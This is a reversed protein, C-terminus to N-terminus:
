DATIIASGHRTSAQVRMTRAARDFGPSLYIARQRGMQVTQSVLATGPVEIRAAGWGTEAELSLGLEGQRAAQTVEPPLVVRASGNVTTATVRQHPSPSEPVAMPRVTVSGNVSAAKLDGAAAVGTVSGNTSRAEVVAARVRELVVSGNVSSASVLQAAVDALDLRGNASRVEVSDGGVGKVSVSGNVTSGRLRVALYSAVTLEVSVSDGFGWRREADAARVALRTPGHEVQVLRPAEAEAEERTRARVRRELRLRWARPGGLDAAPVATVRLSGNGVSLDVDPVVGEAFTGALEEALVHEPYAAKGIQGFAQGIREALTQGLQELREGLDTLREQVQPSSMARYVREGLEDALGSMRAAASEVWRMFDGTREPPEPRAAGPAGAEYPGTGAAAGPGAEAGRAAPQLAKLLEVAQEPTIKGAELMRLIMRREESLDGGGASAGGSGPPMGVKEDDM